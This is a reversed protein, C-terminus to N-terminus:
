SKQKNMLLITFIVKLIYFRQVCTLTFIFYLGFYSYCTNNFRHLFYVSFKLLKVPLKPHETFSTNLISTLVFGYFWDKFYSLDSLSCEFNHCVGGFWMHGQKLTIITAADWPSEIKCGVMPISYHGGAGRGGNWRTLVRCCKPRSGMSGPLLWWKWCESLKKHFHHRNKSNEVWILQGHTRALSQSALGQM